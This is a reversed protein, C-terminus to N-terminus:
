RQSRAGFPGSDHRRHFKPLQLGYRLELPHRRARRSHRPFPHAAWEVLARLGEQQFKWNKNRVQQVFATL